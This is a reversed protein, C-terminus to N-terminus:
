HLLLTSNTVFSVLIIVTIAELLSLLTAKHLQPSPHAGDGGHKCSAVTVRIYFSFTSCPRGEGEGWAGTGLGVWFGGTGHKWTGDHKICSTAELLVGNM